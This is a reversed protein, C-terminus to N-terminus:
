TDPAIDLLFYGLLQKPHTKLELSPHAQIHQAIAHMVFVALSLTSFEAWVIKIIEKRVKQVGQKSKVAV